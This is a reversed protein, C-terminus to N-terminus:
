SFKGQFSTRKINAKSIISKNNKNRAPQEEASGAEAEDPLYSIISTLHISLFNKRV